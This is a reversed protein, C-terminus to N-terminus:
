ARGNPGGEELRRVRETLADLRAVVLDHLKLMQEARKQGHETVELLKELIRDRQEDDIPMRNM